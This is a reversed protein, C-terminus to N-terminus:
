DVHNGIALKARGDLVVEEGIITDKGITINEPNYFRAGTHITSGSGIKMGVFRYFFRRVHHSPFCGILHLIYVAFERSITDLRNMAKQSFEESTLTKGEKDQM